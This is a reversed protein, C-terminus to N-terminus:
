NECCALPASKAIKNTSTIIFASVGVVSSCKLFIAFYTDNQKREKRMLLCIWLFLVVLGLAFILYYLEKM